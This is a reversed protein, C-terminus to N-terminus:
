LKQQLKQTTIKQIERQAEARKGRIFAAKQLALYEELPITVFEKFRKKRRLNKFFEIM